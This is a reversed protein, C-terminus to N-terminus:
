LVLGVALVSLLGTLALSTSSGMSSWRRSASSFSKVPQAGTVNSPATGAWLQINRYYTNQSTPTAWSPDNGGFFTSFYIGMVSEIDKSSRYYLAQKRVALLDNFSRLTLLSSPPSYLSLPEPLFEYGRVLAM